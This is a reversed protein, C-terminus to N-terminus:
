SCLKFASKALTTPPHNIAEPSIQMQILKSYGSWIYFKFMILKKSRFFFSDVSKILEKKKIEM